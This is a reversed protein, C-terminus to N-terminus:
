PDVGVMRIYSWEAKFMDWPNGKPVLFAMGVIKNEHLCVFCTAQNFLEVLKDEDRLSKDWKVANEPSLIPIFEAYATIALKKLQDLDTQLSQRYALSTIM